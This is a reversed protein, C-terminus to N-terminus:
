ASVGAGYAAAHLRARIEDIKENFGADIIKVKYLLYGLGMMIFLQVMQHLIVYIEM